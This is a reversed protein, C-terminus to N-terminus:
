RLEPWILRRAIRNRLFAAGACLVAFGAAAGVIEPINAALDGSPAHRFAGHLPGLTKLLAAAAGIMAGYAAARAVSWARAADRSVYLSPILM